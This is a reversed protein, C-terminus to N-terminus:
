YRRFNMFCVINLENMLEFSVKSFDNKYKSPVINIVILDSVSQKALPHKRNRWEEMGGNRWEEM